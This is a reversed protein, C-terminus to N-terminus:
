RTLYAALTEIHHQMSLKKVYGLGPFHRDRHNARFEALANTAHLPSNPQDAFAILKRLAELYKGAPNTPTDRHDSVFHRIMMMNKQRRAIYTLHIAIAYAPGGSESYDDGVTLFDGFGRAEAAYTLHLDSFMEEDPYDRNKRKVFADRVLIRDVKPFQERYLKPCNKELFIHERISAGKLGTGALATVDSFGCHVLSVSRRSNRKLISRIQEATTSQTLLFGLSCSGNEADAAEDLFEVFESNPRNAHNGHNPNAVLVYEADAEQLAAVARELDALGNQVPEIIPCVGHSAMLAANERVALLEFRKGHFYPYYLSSL